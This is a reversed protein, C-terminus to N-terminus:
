EEGTINRNVLMGSGNDKIKLLLSTYVKIEGDVPKGYSVLVENGDECLVGPYDPTLEYGITKGNERLHLERIRYGRYACHDSFFDEARRLAEAAEIGPFNRVRGPGTVPRFSYADDERDLIVIREADRSFTGGVQILNYTGSIADKEMVLERDMGASACGSTVWLCGLIIANCFAMGLSKAVVDFIILLQKKM